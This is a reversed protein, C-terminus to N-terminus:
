ELVKRIKKKKKLNLLSLFSFNPVWNKYSIKSNTGGVKM